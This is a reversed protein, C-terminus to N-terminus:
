ELAGEKNGMGEEIREHMHPQRGQGAKQERKEAM